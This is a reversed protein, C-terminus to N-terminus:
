ARYGSHLENMWGLFVQESLGSEKIAISLSLLGKQVLSCLNEIIGQERGENRSDDCLDEVVKCMINLGKKDEKFYSETGVM